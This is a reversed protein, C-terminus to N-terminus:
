SGEKGIALRLVFPILEVAPRTETPTRAGEFIAVVVEALIQRDVGAGAQDVIEYVLGQMWSMFRDHAQRVTESQQIRAHMDLHLFRYPYLRKMGLTLRDYADLDSERGILDSFEADYLEGMVAAFIDDKSQFYWYINARVVGAADSIDTMTTGAYGKHVFVKTAAELLDAARQDRPIHQRNRPM